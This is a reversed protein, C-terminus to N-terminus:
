AVVMKIIERGSFGQTEATIENIFDHNIGEM